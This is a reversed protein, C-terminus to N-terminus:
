QLGHQELLQQYLQELQEQTGEIAFSASVRARGAAGMEQRLAPDSLLRELAAATAQPDGPPVLLGTQGDLVVEPTGGVATAVVPLGAAMAELLALSIGEWASPLAFIDFHVLWGAAGQQHGVFHINDELGLRNCQELLELLQSGEGVFVVHFDRGQDILLSAAQILTSQGKEPSLRGVCGVSLSGAPVPWSDPHRARSARKFNRVDLGNYIVSIQAPPIGERAMLVDAVAQCSVVYRSVWGLTSADLITRLRTRAFEAGHQHVVVPGINLWRAALRGVLGAHYLHTHVLDPRSARWLNLLRSFAAAFGARRNLGLEVVPVNESRLEELLEGGGALAIVRVDWGARLLRPALRRVYTEAGGTVHMETILWDLRPV